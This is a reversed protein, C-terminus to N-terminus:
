VFVTLVGHIGLGKGIHSLVRDYIGCPKVNDFGHISYFVSARELMQGILSTKINTCLASILDETHDSSRCRTGRMGQENRVWEVGLLHFCCILLM